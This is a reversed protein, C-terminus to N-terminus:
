VGFEGHRVEPSGKHCFKEGNIRFIETINFANLAHEDAGFDTIFSVGFCAAILALALWGMEIRGTPFFPQFFPHRKWFDSALPPPQSTRQKM